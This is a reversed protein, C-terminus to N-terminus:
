IISNHHLLKSYHPSITGCLALLPSVFLIQMDRKVDPAGLLNMLYAKSMTQWTLAYNVYVRPLVPRSLRDWMWKM